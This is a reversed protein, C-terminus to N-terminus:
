FITQKRSEGEGTAQTEEGNLMNRVAPDTFVSVYDFKPPETKDLIKESLIRKIIRYEEDTLKGEARLKQFYNLYEQPSPEQKLSDARILRLVYFSASTLIVLIVCYLVLWLVTEILDPQM